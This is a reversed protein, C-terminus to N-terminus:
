DIEWNFKYEMWDLVIPHEKDEWREVKDSTETITHVKKDGVETMTANGKEDKTIFWAETKSDALAIQINEPTNKWKVKSLIDNDKTEWVVLYWKENKWLDVELKASFTNKKL